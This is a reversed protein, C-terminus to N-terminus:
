KGKSDSEAIVKKYIENWNIKGTYNLINYDHVYEVGGTYSKALVGYDDRKPRETVGIVVTIEKTFTKIRRAVAKYYDMEPYDVPCPKLPHHFLDCFKRLAEYDFFFEEHPAFYLRRGFVMEPKRSFEVVIYPKKNIAIRVEANSVTCKNAGLLWRYKGSKGDVTKTRLTRMLTFIHYQEDTLFLNMANIYVNATMAKIVNVM